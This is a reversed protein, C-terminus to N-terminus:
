YGLKTAENFLIEYDSFWEKTGRNKVEELSDFLNPAWHSDGLSGYCSCHSLSDSGWKTGIRYLMNGSDEYQEAGYYYILTGVGADELQKLEDSSLESDSCYSYRSKPFSVKVIQMSENHRIKEPSDLFIM